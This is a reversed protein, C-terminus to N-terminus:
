VNPNSVQCSDILKDKNFAQKGVVEKEDKSDQNKVEM